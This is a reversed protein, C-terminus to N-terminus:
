FPKFLWVQFIFILLLTSITRKEVKIYTEISIATHVYSFIGMSKKKIKYLTIKECLMVIPLFFFGAASDTYICHNMEM